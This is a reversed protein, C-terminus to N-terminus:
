GRGGRRSPGHRSRGAKPRSAAIAHRHRGVRQHAGVRAGPGDGRPCRPSAEGPARRGLRLPVREGRGPRLTSEIVVRGGARLTATAPSRLAVGIRQHRTVDLDVVVDRVGTRSSQTALDISCAHGREIVPPSVVAFSGPGAYGTAIPADYPSLVDPAQVGVVPAWDLPGVVTAERACGSAERWRSADSIDGRHEALTTMAEAILGRAFPGQARAYARVLRAAIGDTTREEAGLSEGRTLSPDETRYVLATDATVSALASVKRFVLADLAASTLALQWADAARATSKDILDLYHLTATTPDGHAEEEFAVALASALVSADETPGAPVSPRASCAVVLAGLVLQPLLRM